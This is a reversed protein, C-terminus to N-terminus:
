GSRSHDPSALLTDPISHTFLIPGLSWVLLRSDERSQSKDEKPPSRFRVTNLLFRRTAKALDKATGGREGASSLGGKGRTIEM